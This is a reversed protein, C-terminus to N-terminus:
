ANPLLGMVQNRGGEKAMYLAKDALGVMEDKSDLTIDFCTVGISISLPRGPYRRSMAEGVQRIALRIRECYRAAEKYDTDRLVVIFEEGGYRGVSGNGRTLKKLVASVLKLVNDGMQHGFTDNFKKFYDVDLMAVSLQGVEKKAQQFSQELIEDIRGRNYLKTLHDCHAMQNAVQLQKAHELAMGLEHAVQNLPNLTPLDFLPGDPGNDLAILGYVRQPGVVPTLAMQRAQIKNRIHKEVATKGSVLLQKRQRLADLFASPEDDLPIEVPQKMPRLLQSDRSFSAEKVLCRKVPDVHFVMGRKAKFAACISALTNDLIEQKILSKHPALLTEQVPTPKPAEVPAVPQPPPKKEYKLETNLKALSIGADLLNRNFAIHDPFEIGDHAAVKRVDLNVQEVIAAYDARNLSLYKQVEPPLVPHQGRPLSGLGQIWALFDALQVIATLQAVEKGVEKADYRSHHLAVALVVASNMGWKNLTHAGIGDHGVGLLTREYAVSDWDTRISIEQLEEYDMAGLGDILLKGLDHLLGALYAEEINAYNVKKAIVRAACAVWLNHRWLTARDFSSEDDQAVHIFHSFMLRELATARITNFGLRVVAGHLGGEEEGTMKLVARALEPSQEVIAVVDAANTRELRTSRLLEFLTTPLGLSEIGGRTLVSEVKKDPPLWPDVKM